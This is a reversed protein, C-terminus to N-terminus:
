MEFGFPLLSEIDNFILVRDDSFYCIVRIKKGQRLQQEAMVQRCAGCPLAAVLKNEPNKAIIALTKVTKDPHSVAASFLATREACLGSPYATNEQNSGKVITGDELLLATGVHFNSYPAYATDTAEIASNLLFRDDWELEDLAVESYNITLQKEM